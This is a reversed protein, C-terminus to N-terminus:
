GKASNQIAQSSYSCLYMNNFRLFDLLVFVYLIEVFVLCFCVFVM